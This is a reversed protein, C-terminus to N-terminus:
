LAETRDRLAVLRAIAKSLTDNFGEFGEGADSGTLPGNRDIWADAEDFTPFVNGQRRHIEYQGDTMYMGPAYARSNAFREGDFSDVFFYTQGPRM